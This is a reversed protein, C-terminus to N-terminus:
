SRWETSVALSEPGGSDCFPCRGRAEAGSSHLPVFRSIFTDLALNDM